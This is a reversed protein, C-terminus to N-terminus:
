KFHTSAREFADRLEEFASHVGARLDQWADASASRVRQLRQRVVEARANLDAASKSLQEKATGSAQAARENLDQVQDDLQRLVGQLKREYEDKQQYTYDKVSRLADNVDQKVQAASVSGHTIEIARGAGDRPEYTVRVSTGLTFRRLDAPQGEYRLTADKGVHLKVLEGQSTEVTLREPPQLEKVRGRITKPDSRADDAGVLGLALLVACVKVFRRM